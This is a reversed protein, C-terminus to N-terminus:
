AASSLTNLQGQLLRDGLTHFRSFDQIVAVANSPTRTPWASSTPAAFSGASTPPSPVPGRRPPRTQLASCATATSSPAGPEGGSASVPIGCTFPATLDIGRAPAGDEDFLLSEGTSGDGTLFGPVTYTGTVKRMLQGDDLDEVSAVEFTPAADGLEAFADDRMSLLPGTLNRTSIVTFDWAVVLDARDVGAEGLVDFVEDM